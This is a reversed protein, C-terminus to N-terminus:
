SNSVSPKKTSTPIRDVGRNVASKVPTIPIKLSSSSVPKLDDDDDFDDDDVDLDEEDDAAPNIPKTSTTGKFSKPLPPDFDVDDDFDDDDDFDLDDDKRESETIMQLLEEISKENREWLRIITRRKRERVRAAGMLEVLEEITMAQKSDDTVLDKKQTCKPCIAKARACETCVIHYAFAVKKLSCVTCKRPQTIPKYKRYKKRWEIIAHCRTCVGSNPIAAIKATKRSRPNHHFAPKNPNRHRNTSM